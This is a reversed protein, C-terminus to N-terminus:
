KGGTLLRGSQEPCLCMRRPPCRFVSNTEPFAGPRHDVGAWARSLRRSSLLPEAHRLVLKGLGRVCGRRQGQRRNGTRCLERDPSPEPLLRVKSSDGSRGSDWFSHRSLYSVRPRIRTLAFLAAWTGMRSPIRRMGVLGAGASPSPKQRPRLYGWPSRKRSFGSASLRLCDM